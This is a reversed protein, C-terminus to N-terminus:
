LVRACRGDWDLTLVPDKGTIFDGEYSPFCEGAYVDAMGHEHTVGLLCKGEVVVM